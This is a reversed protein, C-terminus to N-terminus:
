LYPTYDRTGQHLPLHLGPSNGQTGAESCPPTGGRWTTPLRQRLERHVVCLARGILLDIRPCPEHVLDPSAWVLSCPFINGDRRHRWSSGYHRHRLGALIGISKVYRRVEGAPTASVQIAVDSCPSSRYARRLGRWGVPCGDPDPRGDPDATCGCHLRLRPQSGRHKDASVRGRWLSVHMRAWVGATSNQGYTTLGRRLSQLTKERV